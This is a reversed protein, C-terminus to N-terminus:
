IDVEAGVYNSLDPIALCKNSPTKLLGAEKLLQLHWLLMWVELCGAKWSKEQSFCDLAVMGTPKGFRVRQRDPFKATVALILNDQDLGTLHGPNITFEILETELLTPIELILCFERGQHCIDQHPIGLTVGKAPHLSGWTFVM